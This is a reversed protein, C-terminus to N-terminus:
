PSGLERYASPGGYFQAWKRAVIIRERTMPQDGPYPAIAEM